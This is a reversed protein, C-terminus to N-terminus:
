YGYKSRLDSSKDKKPTTQKKDKPTFGWWEDKQGLADSAFGEYAADIDAILGSQSLEAMGFYIGQEDIKKMEEELKASVEDDSLSDDMMIQTKVDSKIAAKDRESMKDTPVQYGLYSTGDDGKIISYPQVEQNKGGVNVTVRPNDVAKGGKTKTKFIAEKYENATSGKDSLDFHQTNYMELKLGRVAKSITEESRWGSGGTKPEDLTRSYDSKIRNRLNSDIFAKAEEETAFDRNYEMQYQKYELDVADSLADEKVQYSTTTVDGKEVKTQRHLDSVDVKSLHSAYDRGPQYEFASQFGQDYISTSHLAGHGEMNAQTYFEKNGTMTDYIANEKEMAQKSRSVDQLMGNKRKEFEAWVAPNKAPNRLAQQNEAAWNVFENYNQTFGEIDVNRMGDTKVQISKLFKEEAAAADKKKQEVVGAYQKALGSTDFVQARGYGILNKDIAM